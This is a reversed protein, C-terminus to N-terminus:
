LASQKFYLVTIIYIIIGEGETWFETDDEIDDVVIVDSHELETDDEINDVIIVDSHEIEEVKDVPQEEHVSCFLLERGTNVDFLVERLCGSYSCQSGQLIQISEQGNDTSSNDATSYPLKEHHIPKCNCRSCRASSEQYVFATCKNCNNCAGREHGFRDKM